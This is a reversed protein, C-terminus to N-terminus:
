SVAEIQGVSAIKNIRGNRGIDLFPIQLHSPLCDQQTMVSLDEAKRIISSEGDEHVLVVNPRYEIFQMWQTNNYAGVCHVALIDGHKLPPLHISHRVVDINMCLPGYLVTEEVPGDIESTLKILHNYWYSTFLLNAGGDLVCARRGDALRKTGVVSTLLMQADDVMARGSEFILQPLPRNSERRYQTGEMLASTVANVYDSIAPISQEPPLYVGKLANNSPFGGGIDLSEIQINENGELERMFKCMIRVQEAYARPELIFTGIHSHLGTLKLHPSLAVLKAALYAQGSEINFGFRSWPETYGTDFNLRLTVPVVSGRAIAISEITHLEELHDVHIRAGEAIARELIAKSKNPGNFIIREGPVGLLRAKEYEFESVVEAWSGEQHMINCIASTYNTKYSWGHIVNGYRREFARKVRRVNERIQKESTVFVPSGYKEVLLKVPVGFVTDCINDKAARRGFKNIEGIKHPQIFPPEWIAKNFMNQM